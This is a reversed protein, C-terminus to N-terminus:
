AGSLEQGESVFHLYVAVVFLMAYSTFKVPVYAFVFFSLRNGQASM